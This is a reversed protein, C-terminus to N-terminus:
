CVIAGDKKSECGATIGDALRELRPKEEPASEAYLLTHRDWVLCNSQDGNRFGNIPKRWEPLDYCASETVLKVPHGQQKAWLSFNNSGHEFELCSERSNVNLPYGAIVDPHFGLCPSRLHPFKEFSATPGYVGPGNTQVANIIPELWNPRWLYALTNFCIMLDCKIRRAMEQYTGNDWGPERYEEFGDAVGEFLNPQGCAIGSNVVILKHPVAPKFQLYTAKFREAGKDYPYPEQYAADHKSLVNIYILTANM